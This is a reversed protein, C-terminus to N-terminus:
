LIDSWNYEITNNGQIALISKSLPSIRVIVGNGFSIEVSTNGLGQPIRPYNQEIFDYSKKIDPTVTTIFNRTDESNNVEESYSCYINLDHVLLDIDEQSPIHGYITDLSMFTKGSDNLNGNFDNLNYDVSNINSNVNKLEELINQNYNSELSQILSDTNNLYDVTFNTDFESTTMHVDINFYNENIYVDDDLGSRSGKEMNLIEFNNDGYKQNLKSIIEQTIKEKESESINEVLNKVNSTEQPYTSNENNNKLIYIVTAIVILLIIIIFIIIPILKKLKNQKM